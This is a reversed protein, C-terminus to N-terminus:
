CAVIGSSRSVGAPHARNATWYVSERYVRPSQKLQHSCSGAFLATKGILRGGERQGTAYSHDYITTWSGSGDMYGVKVEVTKSAGCQQRWVVLWSGNVWDPNQSAVAYGSGGNGCTHSLSAEAAASWALSFVAVFVAVVLAVFWGSVRRRRGVILGSKFGQRYADEWSTM